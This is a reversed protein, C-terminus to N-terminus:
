GDFSFIIVQMIQNNLGNWYLKVLGNVFNFLFWIDGVLDELEWDRVVQGNVLLDLLYSMILCVFIGVVLENIIFDIELDFVVVMLM